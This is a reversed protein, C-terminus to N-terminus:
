LVAGLILLHTLLLPTTHALILTKSIFDEARTEGPNCGRNIKKNQERNGRKQTEKETEVDLPISKNEKM